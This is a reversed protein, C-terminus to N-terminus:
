FFNLYIYRAVYGVALVFIFYTIWFAAFSLDRKNEMPAM